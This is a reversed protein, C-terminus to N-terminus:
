GSSVIAWWRMQWSKGYFAAVTSRGVGMRKACQEHTFVECDLLHITQFEDPTM